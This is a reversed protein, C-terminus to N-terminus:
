TVNRMVELLKLAEDRNSGLRTSFEWVEIANCVENLANSLLSLENRNAFLIFDGDGPIEIIM